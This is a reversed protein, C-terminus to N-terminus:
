KKRAVKRFSTAALLLFLAGMGFLGSDCGSSGSSRGDPGPEGPSTSAIIEISGDADVKVTSGQPATVTSGDPRTVEAGEPDEVNVFLYHLDDAQAQIDMADRPTLTGVTDVIVGVFLAISTNNRTRVRAREAMRVLRIWGNREVKMSATITVSVRIDSTTITGEANPQLVITGDPQIVTGGPIEISTDTVTTVEGSAGGATGVTVTGNAAIESGGPIDITAGGEPTTVTGAEDEPLRVSGNTQITTGAPVEVSIGNNPAQVTGGAPGLIAAGNPQIVTGASLEVTINVVTTRLVGGGGGVTVVGTTRDIHTGTTVQITINTNAIV